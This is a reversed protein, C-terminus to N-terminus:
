PWQTVDVTNATSPKTDPSARVPLVPAQSASPAAIDQLCIDAQAPSIDRRTRTHQLLELLQVVHGVGVARLRLGLGAALVGRALAGARLIRRALLLHEGM